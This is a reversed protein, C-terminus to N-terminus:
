LAPDRWPTCRHAADGPPDRANPEGNPRAATESTEFRATTRPARANATSRRPAGREELRERHLELYQRVLQGSDAGLIAAIEWPPMGQEGLTTIARKARWAISGPSALGTRGLMAGDVGGLTTLEGHGDIPHEVQVSSGTV